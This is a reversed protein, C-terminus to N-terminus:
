LKIKQTGDIKIQYTYFPLRPIDPHLTTFKQACKASSSFGTIFVKDSIDIGSSSLETKADKIM